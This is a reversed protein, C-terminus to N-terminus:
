VGSSKVLPTQIPPGDLGAVPHPASPGIIRIFERNLEENADFFNPFHHIAIFCDDVKPHGYWAANCTIYDAHYDLVTDDNDSSSGPDELPPQRTTLVAGTNLPSASVAVTLSLLAWSTIIM